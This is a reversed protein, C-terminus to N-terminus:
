KELSKQWVIDFIMVNTGPRVPVSERVRSAQKSTTIIKRRSSEFRPFSVMQTPSRV